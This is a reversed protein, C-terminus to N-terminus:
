RDRFWTERNYGLTTPEFGVGAVTKWAGLFPRKQNLCLIVFHSEENLTDINVGM